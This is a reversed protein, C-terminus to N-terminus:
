IWSTMPFRAHAAFGSRMYLAIAPQNDQEVELRLAQWGRERCQQAAFDLAARGLGKGRLAADIFLEDLLGFRGGFELSYGLVVVIYGALAGDMQITWIGGFEPETILKETAHRARAPDFPSHGEVYLQAMMGLVPEMDNATLRM